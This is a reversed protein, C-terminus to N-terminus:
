RNYNIPKHVISKNLSILLYNIKNIKILIFRKSDMILLCAFQLIEHVNFFRACNLDASTNKIKNEARQM